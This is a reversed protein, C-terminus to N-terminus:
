LLNLYSHRAPLLWFLDCWDDDRYLEQHEGIHKNLVRKFSELLADLIEPHMQFIFVMDQEKLTWIKCPSM